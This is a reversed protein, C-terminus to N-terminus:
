KKKGARLQTYKERLAELAAQHESSKLHPFANMLRKQGFSREELMNSFSEKLADLRQAGAERGQEIRDRMAASRQERAARSQDLKEEVQENVTDTFIGTLYSLSALPDSLSGGAAMASVMLALPVLLCLAPMLLRKKKM